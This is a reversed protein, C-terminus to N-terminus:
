AKFARLMRDLLRARKWNVQICFHELDADWVLQCKFMYGKIKMDEGTV